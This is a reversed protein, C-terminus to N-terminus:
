EERKRQAVWDTITTELVDLPIAGNALVADHFERLDFAPGLEREALARLGGIKLEGIKYALAQGPWGIYRDIENEINLMTLATNTAMHDIAQQRTWGFHHIGTDVVLRCARWMSYILRGFDRYPDEYFGTELGLREAYLAWGEVFATFGGFRRFNPLGEIERQLATQLHHGPVAEHLSLAEIEYLPRSKLDYTNVYYFGARSGDGPAPSYYATYTKPAIYDPVPKIGYPMRPLRGFLKPLQGDMKKLVFAIEKLLAEPTEVYFQPDTRLFTVFEAFTGKFDVTRIVAEMEVRLRAVEALGTEHVEGPSLDLSTASRVRHAYFAEGDPLASAAIETRAAPLYEDTTFALLRRYGPVASDTIAARAGEALRKRDGDAVVTPFKEFPAYLLSAAPEEVIHPEITAEIGEMAVRAQVHGDRIGARMLEIYGEVYAKFGRLRSVYNAYDEATNLPMHEPLQAFGTHFGGSKRVPMRYARFELEAIANEKQRGFIDCNLQEEPSLAECDIARLKGLFAKMQALRREEDAESVAPLKDDFRHDGFYTAFTPNEKLRFEWEDAFLQELQASARERRENGDTM